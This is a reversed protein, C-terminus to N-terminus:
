LQEFCLYNVFHGILPIKGIYCTKHHQVQVATCRQKLTEASHELGASAVHSALWTRSAPTVAPKERPEGTKALRSLPGEARRMHAPIIKFPVYFQISFLFTCIENIEAPRQRKWTTKCSFGQYLQM